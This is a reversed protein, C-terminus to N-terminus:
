YQNEAILKGQMVRGQLSGTGASVDNHHGFYALLGGVDGVVAVLDREDEGGHTVEPIDQTAAPVENVVVFIAACHCRQAFYHFCLQSTGATSAEHHAFGPFVAQSFAHLM